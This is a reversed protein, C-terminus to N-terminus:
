WRPRKKHRGPHATRKVVSPSLPHPISVSASANTVALDPRSTSMVAHPGEASSTDRNPAEQTAMPALSQAQETSESIDEYQEPTHGTVLDFGRQAHSAASVIMTPDDKLKKIWSQLYAASNDFRVSDLICANNSLFAAGLEAILEEKSYRESGFKVPNTIGERDLRSAHGTAHTMEHFLTHFYDEGSRFSNQAPMRILDESPSYTAAFGEHRIPCLKAERVLAEAREVSTPAATDPAPASASAPADVGETQELNFVNSWRVFPILKPRGSSTFVPNGKGDQKALFKYYIVPSSKEGKRVHGGLELAQRFTMWFPSKFPSSGLTLSNIGRYAKGSIINAASQWTRQWPVVGTRLKEIFRETIVAHIDKL